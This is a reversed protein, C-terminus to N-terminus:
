DVKVKSTPTVFFRQLVGAVVPTLYTVVSAEDIVVNFQSALLIVGDALVAVVLVPEGALKSILFRGVNKLSQM